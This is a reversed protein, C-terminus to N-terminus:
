GVTMIKIGRMRRNIEDLVRDVEYMALGNLLPLIDQALREYNTSPFAMTPTKDRDM